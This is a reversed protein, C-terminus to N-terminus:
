RRAREQAMARALNGHRADAWRKVLAIAKGDAAWQSPVRLVAWGLIAAEGYKACDEIFGKGRTHRSDTWIGGEVECALMLSPWCFDFRWRRTAHFMHEPVFQPLEGRATADDFQLELAMAAVSAVRKAPKTKADVRAQHERAEALARRQADAVKGSGRPTPLFETRTM